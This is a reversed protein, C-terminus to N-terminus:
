RLGRRQAEELLRAYIDGQVGPGYGAQNAPGRATTTTTAVSRASRNLTIGTQTTSVPGTNSFLFNIPVTDITTVVVPTSGAHAASAAFGALALAVLTKM